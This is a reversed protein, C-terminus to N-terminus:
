SDAANVKCKRHMDHQLISIGCPNQLSQHLALELTRGPSSVLHKRGTQPPIRPEMSTHHWGREVLLGRVQQTGLLFKMSFEHIDM